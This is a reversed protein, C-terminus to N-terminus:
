GYRIQRRWATPSAIWLFPYPIDQRTDIAYRFVMKVGFGERDRNGKIIALGGNVQDHFPKCLSSIRNRTFGAPNLLEEQVALLTGRSLTRSM